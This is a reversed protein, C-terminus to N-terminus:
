DEQKDFIAKINEITLAETYPIRIFYKYKNKNKLLLNNKIRDREQTEKLGKVGGFKRVAEFHQRGDYEFMSFITNDENYLVIDCELFMKTNPNKLWEISRVNNKMRKDPFM